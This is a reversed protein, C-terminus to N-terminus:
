GYNVESVDVSLGVRDIRASVLEGSLENTFQLQSTGLGPRRVEEVSRYDIISFDMNTYKFATNPLTLKVFMNDVSQQATAVLVPATNSESPSVLVSTGWTGSGPVYTQVSVSGGTGWVKLYHDKGQKLMVILSTEATDAAGRAPCDIAPIIGVSALKPARRGRMLYALQHSFAWRPPLMNGEGVTPDQIFFKRVGYRNNYLDILPQVDRSKGRWSMNFSKSTIPEHRIHKGGGLLNTVEAGADHATGMGSSPYPVEWVKGPFGIRLNRSM